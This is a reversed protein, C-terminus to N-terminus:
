DLEGVARPDQFELEGEADMIPDHEEDVDILRIKVPIKGRGNTMALYLAVYPLTASFSASQLATFIGLITKMGTQPDIYIQDAVIM